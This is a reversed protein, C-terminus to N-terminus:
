EQSAEKPLRARKRKAALENVFKIMENMDFPKKIAADAGAPIENHRLETSATIVLIGVNKGIEKDNRLKRIVQYGNIDPLALDVLVVAPKHKKALRVAEQGHTTGKVKFGEQELCELEIYLLDEDDEVVLLNPLAKKKIEESAEESESPSRPDLYIQKLDIPM